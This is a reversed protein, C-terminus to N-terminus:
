GEGQSAADGAGPVAPATALHTELYHLTITLRGQDVISGALLLDSGHDGFPIRVLDVSVGAATAANCFAYVSQPPVLSDHEPELVLTQPAGANIYTFSSIAQYRDPYEAPTGGTYAELFARDGWSTDQGFDNDWTLAPDVVPYAAVVARPVPVPLGCSSAADGEAAAYAVNIALNGGASEGALVLRTPDAGLHAANQAIWGLACGIVSQTANWTPRTGTALPYEASLVLWGQEAFWRLDSSAQDPTGQIWGGGHLYVLTPAPTGGPPDYVSLHLPKGEFTTFIVQADPSAASISSTQFAALFNVSGGAGVIALVLTTIIALTMVTSAVGLTVCAAAARRAVKGTRLNRHAFWGALVTLGSVVAMLPAFAPVLFGAYYSLYSLGPVLTGVDFVALIAALPLAVATLALNLLRHHWWRHREAHAAPLDLPPSPKRWPAPMPCAGEAELSM